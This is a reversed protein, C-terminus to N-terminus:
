KSLICCNKLYLRRCTSTMMHRHVQKWIKADLIALPLSLFLYLFCCFNGTTTIYNLYKCVHRFSVAPFTGLDVTLPHCNYVFNNIDLIYKSIDLYKLYWNMTIVEVLFRTATFSHYTYIPDLPNPWLLFERFSSVCFQFPPERPSTTFMNSRPM